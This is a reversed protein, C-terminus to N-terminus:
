DRRGPRTSEDFAHCMTPCIISLRLVRVKVKVKFSAFVRGGPSFIPAVVQYQFDHTISLTVQGPRDPMMSNSCVTSSAMARASVPLSGSATAVTRQGRERERQAVDANSKIIQVYLMCVKLENQMLILATEHRCLCCASRLISMSQLTSTRAHTCAM